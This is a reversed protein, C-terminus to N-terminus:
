IVKKAIYKSFISIIWSLVMSLLPVILYLYYSLKDILNHWNMINLVMVHVLYIELSFLGVFFCIGIKNIINSIFEIIYIISVAFTVYFLWLLSTPIYKRIPIVFIFVTLYMIFFLLYKKNLVFGINLKFILMGIIFAPFRCIAISFLHYNPCYLYTTIVFIYSIILLSIAYITNKKVIKYFVPFLLYMIIIAHVFWTTRSGEFWFSYGSLDKIFGSFNFSNDPLSTYTYNKYLYYPISILLYPIILRVIRKKYYLFTNPNNSFSLSLCFGSLLMFIDVGCNGVKLFSSIIPINSTALNNIHFFM